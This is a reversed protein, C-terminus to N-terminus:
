ASSPIIHVIHSATREHKCGPHSVCRSHAEEDFLTTVNVSAGRVAHITEHSRRRRTVDVDDFHQGVKLDVELEHIIIPSSGEHNGRGVIINRNCAKERAAAVNVSATGDTEVREHQRAQFSIKLKNGEQCVATAVHVHAVLM